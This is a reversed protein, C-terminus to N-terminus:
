PQSRKQLKTKAYELGMRAMMFVGKEELKKEVNKAKRLGYAAALQALPHGVPLGEFRGDKVWEDAITEALEFAKPAKAKLIDSGYFHLHVKGDDTKAGADETEKAAQDAVKVAEDSLKVTEDAHPVTEDVQMIAEEAEAPSTERGPRRHNKSKTKKAGAHKPAHRTKGHKTEFDKITPM